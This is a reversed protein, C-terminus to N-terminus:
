PPMTCFYYVHCYVWFQLLFHPIRLPALVHNHEGKQARRFPAASVEIFALLILCGVLNLLLPIFRSWLTKTTSVVAIRAVLIALQTSIGVFVRKHVNEGLQDAGYAM